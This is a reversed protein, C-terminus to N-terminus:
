LATFQHDQAVVARSLMWLQMRSDELSEVRFEWGGASSLIEAAETDERAIAGGTRPQAALM